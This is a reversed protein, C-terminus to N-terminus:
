EASHSAVQLPPPPFLGDPTDAGTADFSLSAGAVLAVDTVEVPSNDPAVDGFHGNSGDPMGALWLNATGPVTALLYRDELQELHLRNPRRASRPINHRLRDCTRHRPKLIATM